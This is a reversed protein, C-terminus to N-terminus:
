KWGTIDLVVGHGTVNHQVSVYFHRGTADFFGGTWEAGEGGNATLDNITGIRICGDSLVDRDSGDDLCDWLDNNKHTDSIDGDEHIIWNGRRPQYAINDMMAFDSSGIVLYQVEPTATNAVADAPSGDTLCITNGWLHDTAENGTNNGCVRVRGAGYAARDIDLDEPRYYGTLKQSAAVARLNPFNADTSAPIWTGLGTETAQGYDTGGSRKGLRLGFVSGENLPSAALDAIAPGGTWPHTPVFKFYAGGPTGASPRNEDGYYVVGNDLVGVGEFSLKGLAPRTALNAAGTGGSFTTGDFSVGTTHLPDILEFLRGASGNEEGFVVTGWPTAHAPDCSTLGTLITEVAGTRLDIRQLAPDTAGQENCAIIHTPRNAPWLTMMDINPAAASTVVRAQLGRALTVLKRPDKTATAADVSSVSSAAVPKGVGFQPGSQAELVNQQHAGWDVSALAAGGVGVGVAGLALASVLKKLQM